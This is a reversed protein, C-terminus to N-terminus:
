QFLKELELQETKKMNGIVDVFHLKKFDTMLLINIKYFDGGFKEYDSVTGVIEGEPFIASYGTTEITDGVNVLVHQPIESLIAYRYDRGDWSLSGFYGNSKIRASLKFNLNLLSMAVSYNKSCGVIVGAVSNESIVAMDVKIGQSEGKNITFFNKQRNISNEIVEASTHLYHQKYVSDNFSFFLSNEKKVLLGIRNKLAVNEEALKENIEHLSLYSRSNYIKKEMGRTVGRVSNVLRSNQYINGTSLLYFAIGELFLFIILNNYRALFNLLNRM